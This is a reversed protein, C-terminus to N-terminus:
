IWLGGSINLECGTVHSADESALYVVGAATEEVTELRGMPTERGRQELFSVGGDQERLAIEGSTPIWGVTVWNVRIQDAALARAMTKTLNLLAAKSSTYGLRELNGGQYVMTTGINIISGGGQEKMAPIASRSLLFPGRTNVAYIQDWTEPTMEEFPIRGLHAANNVLINLRGFEKLTTEILNLCNAEKSVDAQIFIARGGSLNIEAAIWEGAGIRRGSIVVAAGEDAMKRAIGEGLESTSGTIIAVKKMLRKNNVRPHIGGM